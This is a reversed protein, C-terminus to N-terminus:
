AGTAPKVVGNGGLTTDSNSAFNWTQSTGTSPPATTTAGTNDTDTTTAGWTAPTPATTAPASWTNGNNVPAPTATTAAPTSAPSGGNSTPTVNGSSTPGWTNGAPTPATTSPTTGTYGNSAPATATTPSSATSNKSSTSASSGGEGIKACDIYVQWEMLTAMWFMTLRSKGVCKDKEYTFKGAPYTVACNETFPLVNEDDCWVECPGDHNMKGGYWELEAPLPQVAGGTPDTFGCEATKPMTDRGLSLDQNALIFDKLTTWKSAKLARSFAAANLSADPYNTFIDGSQPTLATMPVRSPFNGGYGTGTFKLSPLSLTGHADVSSAALTAVFALAAVVSVM